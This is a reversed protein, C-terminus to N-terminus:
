RTPFLTPEVWVASAGPKAAKLNGLERLATGALKVPDQVIVRKVATRDAIVLAQM